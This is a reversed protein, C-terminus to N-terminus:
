NRISAFTRKRRERRRTATGDDRAESVAHHVLDVADGRDRGSGEDRGREERVGSAANSVVIEDPEAFLERLCQGCAACAERWGQSELPAANADFGQAFRALEEDAGPM